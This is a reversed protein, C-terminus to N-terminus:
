LALQVSFRGGVSVKDGRDEANVEGALVLGNDGGLVRLGGLWGSKRKEPTLTFDEGDTFHATTKGLSGSLISRYGGELEVRMWSKNERQGFLDYGLALAGNVSTEDSDRDDVHLDFADGGGKEDYSKESLKFHDLSVSPRVSFRGMQWDYSAGVSASYLHGKWDGETEREVLVDDTTGNFRRTSDFNIMAATARAYTNLGGWKGRWYLGAEYQNAILENDGHTDRGSLYALTVGVGGAEGLGAELGFTAGWGGLDYDSTAGISKSSAWGVQETWVRWDGPEGPARPDLFMRNVLRPGKTVAEFAGGAHDPLMQQLTDQLTESDGVDLLVGAIQTDSDAAALVADLIDGESRNIGLEDDSKLRITLSVENPVTTVLSSDYLFPLSGVASTLGSGVTLSGAQIIKYTGAVDGVTLLNVAILNNTGLNAAGSVSYLTNTGAEGDISVGITAGSGTTLSALGVSGLNTANLQSGTGVTAAVGGSNLLNGTFNSTGSLQLAGAGGGFDANGNMVGDGSMSLTNSGGGFFVNGTVAGDRIDLVDNGTGFKIQGNIAPATGSAVVTQRVTAGVTNASLDIATAATGLTDSNNVTILGSNEVLNLGGSKDLIATATGASGSRAATINGSNRITTVNAGTDVLITQASTTDTGGGQAAVTGSIVLEPVTAGAGIKIAIANAESAQATVNGSITAGGAIAVTQGAGGISLGTASVGKYVGNGHIGGKIVLGHGATSSAVAGVTVAQSSTGIQVAPAAGYSFIAATGENADEILDDDEDTDTTSNDAPRADFVIGGAVNGAVVVASGGQLLDDADLKSPDAPPTLYRYGSATVSNQIVLAGSINGGLSVGVSGAGQAIITGNTLNVNGNVASTRLGVGNDGLVNITGGTLSINGALTSDVAIGASANGEITINGSNLINGTFTGGSLVHIGFRGSGQAFAGDIDGDNDTDTPTYSEDITITGSNTINGALGPNAVIGASNNAGTIQILGENKVSDNSDITVANGGAPKVSGTSSIRVDDNGTSTLVPTTIATSIVTEANAVAPLLAFSLPTLCTAALLKRM